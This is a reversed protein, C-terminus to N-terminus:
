PIVRNVERSGFRARSISLPRWPRRVETTGGIVTGAQLQMIALRVGPSRPM